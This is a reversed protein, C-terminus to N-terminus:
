SNSKDQTNRSNLVSHQVYITKVLIAIVSYLGINQWANGVSLQAWVFYFANVM